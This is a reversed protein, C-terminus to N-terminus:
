DFNILKKIVTNITTKGFMIKYALLPQNVKKWVDSLAFKFLISKLKELPIIKKINCIRMIPGNKNIPEIRFM